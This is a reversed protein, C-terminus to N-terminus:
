PLRRFAGSAAAGQIPIDWIDQDNIARAAILRRGYSQSYMARVQYLAEFSGSRSGIRKALEALGTKSAVLDAMQAVGADGLGSVILIHNGSPGPLSAIYGYDGLPIDKGADTSVSSRYTRGSTRDTLQQGDASLTFMSARTFALGILPGLGDLPGTYVIDNGRFVGPDLGSAALLRISSGDLSISGTAVMLSRLAFVSNSSVYSLDLDVIDSEHKGPAMKRQRFAERDRIAFDRVIEEVGGGHRRGYLFHDGIAIVTPFRAPTISDWFLLSDPGVLISRNTMWFTGGLILNLSVLAALFSIAKGRGKKFLSVPGSVGRGQEQEESQTAGVLAVGYEGKPIVLRPGPRTEYYQNLMKRLRSVYIRVNPGSAGEGSVPAGWVATAVEAEGPRHGQRSQKLLFNFLRLLKESRRSALVAAFRAGERALDEAAAATTECEGNM